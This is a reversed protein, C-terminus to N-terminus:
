TKYVRGGFVVVRRLAGRPRIGGGISRRASGGATTPRAALAAACRATAPSPATPASAAPRSSTRPSRSPRPSTQRPHHLISATLCLLLQWFIPYFAVEMVRLGSRVFLPDPAGSLIRYTGDSYCHVECIWQLDVYMRLQELKHAEHALEVM